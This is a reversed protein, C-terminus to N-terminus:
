FRSVQFAEPALGTGGRLQVMAINDRDEADAFMLADMIVGHLEDLALSQILDHFFHPPQSVLLVGGRGSRPRRRLFYGDGKGLSQQRTSKSDATGM